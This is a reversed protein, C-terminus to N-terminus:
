LFAAQLVLQQPLNGALYDRYLNELFSKKM